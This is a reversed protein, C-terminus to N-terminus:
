PSLWISPAIGANGSVYESAAALVQKVPENLQAASIGPQVLCIRFEFRKRQANELIREMREPTGRRLVSGSLLRRLLKEKLDGPRNRFPLCKVVQGAVEYADDVRSAAQKQKAKRKRGSAGKCHALQCIVADPRETLSIFDAVEGTRHDYVVVDSAEALFQSEVFEHISMMGKCAVGFEREIDVTTGFEGFTRITSPDLPTTTSGRYWDRGVITSFDALFITPPRIRLFEDLSGESIQGRVLLQSGADVRSILDSRGPHFRFTAISHDDVILDFEVSEQTYSGTNILLELGTLDREEAAGDISLLQPHRYVHENWVIAIPPAPITDTPEGTDLLDLNSGTSVPNPSEIEKALRHCWDVFRPILGYKNSWLKSLTSVGLTMPEAEGTSGGFVHGRSRTNADTLGIRRDAKPGTLTRYSEDQGGLERNRMGLNYFSPNNLIRLARSITSHPLPICVEDSNAPYLSGVISDYLDEGHEQSNIFLLKNSQDYHVIILLNKVDQLSPTNLWKPKEKRQCIMVSASLEDSVAHFVLECGQPIFPTTELNPKRDTRFVKSHFYPNLSDITLDLDDTDARHETEFSALGQRVSAEEEVRADALNAVLEEWSAGSRYLERVEADIEQPVAIFRAKGIDQANTRAFRGVFQLTVALSKHPAHLSAIKLKPFDVGEGFMDVCIVGDLKGEELDHMVKAVHRMTHGGNVLRLRLDTEKEYLSVLEKARIVSDTRVMMRHDLGAKRDERFANQASKAIALDHSQGSKPHCPLFEIKGYTGDDIAARLSYNYILKGPVIRKDRRFPTATFFAKRSDPFAGLLSAYSVAPSHHAEDVMVLDFLDKPPHPVGEISPSASMPTTVVVDFERYSDWDRLSDVRSRIGAVNPLAIDSPLVGLTKLLQLQSFGAVIQDRVLRSPTLVLVRGSAWLFPVMQLVATKGTGTPLVVVAPETTKTGHALLAGAAGLQPTRLGPKENPLLDIGRQNDSFYASM